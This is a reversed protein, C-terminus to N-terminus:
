HAPNVCINPRQGNAKLSLLSILTQLKCKIIKLKIIIIQYIDSKTENLFSRSFIENYLSKATKETEPCISNKKQIEFM